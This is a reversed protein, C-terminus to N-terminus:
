RYGPGGGPRGYRGGDYEHERSRLNGWSQTQLSLLHVLPTPTERCKSPACCAREEALCIKVKLEQQLQDIVRQPDKILNNNLRVWCPCQVMDGHPNEVSPRLPPYQRHKSLTQVLQLVAADPIRNHSLHLEWIPEAKNNTIFDCLATIAGAGIQNQFLKLVAIQVDFDQLTTLLRKTGEDGINNKSFDVEARCSMLPKSGNQHVFAGLKSRLWVCYTELSADDLGPSCDAMWIRLSWQDKGIPRLALAGRRALDDFDAATYGRWARQNGGNEYQAGGGGRRDDWGRDGRRGYWDEEERWHQRRNYGGGYDWQRRGRDEWNWRSYSQDEWDDYGNHGRRYDGRRNRMSDAKRCLGSLLSNLNASDAGEKELQAHASRLVQLCEEGGLSQLLRWSKTDISGQTVQQLRGVMRVMESKIDRRLDGFYDEVLARPDAAGRGHGGDDPEWDKGDDDRLEKWPLGRLEEVQSFDLNEAKGVEIFTELQAVLNKKERAYQASMQAKEIQVRQLMSRLEYLEQDLMALESRHIATGQAVKVEIEPRGVEARVPMTTGVLGDSPVNQAGPVLTMGATPAGGEAAHGPQAPWSSPVFEPADTQWEWEDSFLMDSGNLASLDTAGPNLPRGAAVKPIGQPSGVLRLMQAQGMMAMDGVPHQGMAQMPHMPSGPHNGPNMLPVGM